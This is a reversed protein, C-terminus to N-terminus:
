ESLHKPLPLQVLIGHVEDDQNLAEVVADLEEQSCDASMRKEISRIGAQEARRIKNRVYVGSAPDDGVLVVALGPAAHGAECMQQVELRVEEVLDDAVSKGDIVKFTM